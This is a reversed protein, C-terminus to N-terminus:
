NGIVGAARGKTHGRRVRARPDHTRWRRQKGFDYVHHYLGCLIPTTIATGSTQVARGLPADELAFRTHSHRWWANLPAATETAKTAVLPAVACRVDWIAQGAWRARVIPPSWRVIGKRM